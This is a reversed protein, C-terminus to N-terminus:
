TSAVLTQVDDVLVATVAVTLLGGIIVPVVGLVRQPAPVIVKPAVAEAPVIFQYEEDDPPEEKPVPVDKVVDIEDVVV